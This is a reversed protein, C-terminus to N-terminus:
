NGADIAQARKLRAEIVQADPKPIGIGSKSKKMFAHLVYVANKLNVAYILRYANKDYSERLELVGSGFQPLPKMDLPARGEQVQRLRHGFSAKVAGPLVSIDGKSSGIWIVSRPLFSGSHERDSGNQSASAKNKRTM